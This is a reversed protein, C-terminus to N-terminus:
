GRVLMKRLRQRARFLVSEVTGVSCDMAAAVDEYSMGEFRALVVAMKQRDPLRAMADALMAERERAEVRRDPDQDAPATAAQALDDDLGTRLRVGALARHNLCRNATVRYLWTSFRAEQRFLSAGDILSLFVAQTVDEADADNGLYRRAVRWVKVAHREYLLRLADRDGAAVKSVLLNDDLGDM